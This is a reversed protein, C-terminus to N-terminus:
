MMAVNQKASGPNESLKTEREDISQRFNVLAAYAVGMSPEDSDEWTRYSPMYQLLLDLRRPMCTHM